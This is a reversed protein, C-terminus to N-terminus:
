RGLTNKRHSVKVITIDVIARCCYMMRIVKAGDGDEGGENAGISVVLVGAKCPIGVETSLLCKFSVRRAYHSVAQSTQEGSQAM